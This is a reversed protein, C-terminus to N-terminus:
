YDSQMRTHKRQERTAIKIWCLYDIISFEESLLLTRHVEDQIPLFIYLIIDLKKIYM